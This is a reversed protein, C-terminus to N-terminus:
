RGAIVFVVFQGDTQKEHNKYYTHLWEPQSEHNKYYTRPRAAQVEV